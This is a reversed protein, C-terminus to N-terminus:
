EARHFTAASSNKNDLGLCVVIMAFTRSYRATFGDLIVGATFRSAEASGRAPGQFSQPYIKSSEALDDIDAFFAKEVTLMESRPGLEPELELKLAFRHQPNDVRADAEPVGLPM